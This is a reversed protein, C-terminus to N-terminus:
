TFSQRKAKSFCRIPGFNTESAIEYSRLKGPPAHGWAGRAYLTRTPASGVQDSWVQHCRGQYQQIDNGSWFFLRSHFLLAYCVLSLCTCMYLMFEVSQCAIDLWLHVLLILQAKFIYTVEPNHVLAGKNQKSWQLPLCILWEWIM